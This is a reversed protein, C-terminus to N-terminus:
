GLIKKIANGAKSGSKVEKIMEERSYTRNGSVYQLEKPLERIKEEITPM